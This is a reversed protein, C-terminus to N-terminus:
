YNELQDILWTRLKKEPIMQFLEPLRSDNVFQRFYEQILEETKMKKYDM